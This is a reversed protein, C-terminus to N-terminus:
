RRARRTAVVAVITLSAAGVALGMSPGPTPLSCLVAPAGTLGAIVGIAAIGPEATGDAHRQRTGTVLDAGLHAACSGLAAALAVQAPGAESLLLSVGLGAPLAVVAVIAVHALVLGAALRSPSLGVDVAWRTQGHLVGPGAVSSALGAIVGLVTFAAGVGAVQELLGQTASGVGALAGPASLGSGLLVAGAAAAIMLLRRLARAAGQRGHSIASIVPAAAVPGLRGLRAVGPRASPRPHAVPLRELVAMATVRRVLPPALALTAGLGILLATVGARGAMAAGLRDLVGLASGADQREIVDVVGPLRRGLLVGTATATAVVAAAAVTSLRRQPARSAASLPGIVGAAGCVLAILSALGVPSGLSRASALAGLAALLVLTQRLLAPAGVRGLLIASVPIDLARLIAGDHPAHVPTRAAATGARLSVIACQCVLAATLMGVSVAAGIGLAQAVRLAILGIVAGAPAALLVASAMVGAGWRRARRTSPEIANRELAQLADAAVVLLVARLRASGAERRSAVVTM